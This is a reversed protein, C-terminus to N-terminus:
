TMFCLLIVLCAICWLHFYSERIFSVKSPVRFSKFSAVERLIVDICYIINSGFAWFTKTRQVQHLSKLSELDIRNNRTLDIAERIVVSTRGNGHTSDRFATCTLSLRLLRKVLYHIGCLFKIYLLLTVIVLCYWAVSSFLLKYADSTLSAM